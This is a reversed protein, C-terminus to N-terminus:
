TTVQPKLKHWHCIEIGGIMITETLPWFVETLTEWTPNPFVQNNRKKTKISM